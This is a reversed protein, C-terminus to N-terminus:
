DRIRVRDTPDDMWLCHELVLFDPVPDVTTQGDLVALLQLLQAEKVLRWDSIDICHAAPQDHRSCTTSINRLYM